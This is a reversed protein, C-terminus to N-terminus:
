LRRGGGHSGPGTVGNEQYTFVMQFHGAGVLSGDADVSFALSQTPDGVLQWQGSSM